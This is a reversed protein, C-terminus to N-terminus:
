TLPHIFTYLAPDTEGELMLHIDWIFNGLIDTAQYLYKGTSWVHNEQVARFNRFLESKAFLDDVTELPDDISANYIIYDADKAAVYFEEMTMDISASTSGEDPNQYFYQGGGLEIMAPLYDDTNRVSVTGETSVYFFAVTKGSPALGSLEEIYQSQANFLEDAKEPCGLLLAYVKLWETRGLPHNEYSSRDILVPIGLEELKEQVEPSHYIMTSEVALDCGEQLLLEYDPASYKGAYLIEGVEMARAANEVYWSEQKSGSFRIADLRDMADFLSMAATAVLYVKEFPQKLIIYDEAGMPVPANEPVIIYDRGDDVHLISYGGEYYDCSFGKAYVVEMSGAPVLESVCPVTEDSEVSATAAPDETTGAPGCATLQMFILAVFLGWILRKKMKNKEM